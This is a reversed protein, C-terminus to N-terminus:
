HRTPTACSVNSATSEEGTDVQGDNSCDNWSTVAYCVQSDPTLGTDTYQANATTGVFQLKGALDYYVRYGSPPAPSVADWTLDVKRKAGTAVLNQPTGPTTCPPPPPPTSNPDTWTAEAMLFPM